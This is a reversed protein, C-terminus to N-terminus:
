RIQWQQNASGSSGWQCLNSGGATSGMGDLYLGTARNKFRVYSGSAEQTWQQNASGSNAWQGCVSGSGTRGMGDLYLGTARNQIMVYNGSNIIAWQQNASNSDSWQCANSGNATSGMGDIYLGTAANRFRVYSGVPTPTPTPMVTATPTPIVPTPTPTPIGSGNFKWWNFNFLSGSGGTFRFYLDHVGSAGSVTCSKTVWNQWGGTGSVACTGVLTGTLSNLRLEINGGSNASAVRSDFSTAGSGFDVGKVKIYDGNEINCVDMGGESCKEMEVGSEWCTTEAETAVYPNLNGIQPPGTTTMNMTPITGDANYKFQEVCVSRHYGGGGPLAGNHYFFYSNGKYDCVGPHNTFSAGQTPMVIGRFTWPGTPGTSTSYCINEPIGSSAYVMYYLGNRKYFWPGEEYLTQHRSDGGTRTGFSATTMPVTVIGNNGVSRDFSIMDANLKVYYLAPNGWYLYAQGDDDIFVTPDIDDVSKNILARGLPDTFPGFPSDSVLVGIGKLHIPCYLYFKGNRYICQAAWAGNDPAWSFSKLSAVMGHDTWNVMDTSSYCRWEKMTFFNNVLVDEDHTTYVYVRGDYVMPAPDASYITQVIPNDALCITIGLLMILMLSFMILIKNRM